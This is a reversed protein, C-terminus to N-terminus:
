FIRQHGLFWGLLGLSLRLRSRRSISGSGSAPRGLGVKLLRDRVTSVPDLFALVLAAHLPM